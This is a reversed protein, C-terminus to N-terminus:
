GSAVMVWSYAGTASRACVYLKDAVGSAGELFLADGRRSADAPPLGGVTPFRGKRRALYRLEADQTSVIGLLGATEQGPLFEGPKRRVNSM